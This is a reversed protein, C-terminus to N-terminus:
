LGAVKFNSQRSPAQKTGVAALQNKGQRGKRQQKALANPLSPEHQKLQSKNHSTLTTQRLKALLESHQGKTLILNPFLWNKGNWQRKTQCSPRVEDQRLRWGSTRPLAFNDAARDRLDWDFIYFILGAMQM